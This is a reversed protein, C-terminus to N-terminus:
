TIGGRLVQVAITDDTTSLMYGEADPPALRDQAIETISALDFDRPFEWLDVQRAATRAREEILADMFAREEATAAADRAARIAADEQAILIAEREKVWSALDIPIM